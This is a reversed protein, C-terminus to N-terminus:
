TQKKYKFQYNSLIYKNYFVKYTSYIYGYIIYQILKLLILKWMNICDKQLFLRRLAFRLNGHRESVQSPIEVITVEASTLM